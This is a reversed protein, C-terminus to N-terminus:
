TLNGKAPEKKALIMASGSCLVERLPSLESKGSFLFLTYGYKLLERQADGPQLGNAAQEAWDIFEFLIVPADPGSLLQRGGRFVLCEFGEVDVKMFDVRSLKFDAVLQDVSITEVNEAERTFVSAMSGKGFKGEPSYFRVVQGSVDSLANNLLRMNPLQNLFHNKELYSFVRPSAEICIVKNDPRRKSVPIAVSGINAGVDLWVGGPPLISCIFSITEPEFSGDTYIDFGVNEIINPLVYRCGESGTVSIDKLTKMDGRLLLRALRQKGRFRGLKRLFAAIIAM